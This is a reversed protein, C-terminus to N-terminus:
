AALPLLMLLEYDDHWPHAIECHKEFPEMGRFCVTDTGSGKPPSKVQECGVAKKKRQLTPLKWAGKASETQTWLVGLLVTNSIM